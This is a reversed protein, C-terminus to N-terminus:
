TSERLLEARWDAFRARMAALDDPSVGYLDSDVDTIQTLAGLAGAFVHRDFGGDAGAALELLRNRTYRGSQIAADM